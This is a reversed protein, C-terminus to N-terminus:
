EDDGQDDTSFTWTASSTVQFPLDCDQCEVEHPGNVEDYLHWAEGETIDFDSGCHPCKPAKRGGFDHWAHQAANLAAFKETM